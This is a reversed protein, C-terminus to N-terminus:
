SQSNNPLTFYFSSGKGPISEVWIRGGLMEVYAKSITLGLGSGRFQSSNSKGVQIFRDFITKQMEESIGIGTDKVSFQIAKENKILALEITGSHTFKIANKVLNTLIAYLKERDTKLIADQDSSFKMLTLKLGKEDIEPQFFASIFELQDNLNTESIHIDMLGAEIKSVDVIDNIICLMRAGSKEIIKIYNQQEKGTLGPEKLLEAFGLIGNMPTRIEHSMNALFASKLKDANQAKEQQNRYFNLAVNILAVSIFLYIMMGSYLDFLRDFSTSYKGTILPYNYELLFLATINIFVTFTFFFRQRKTFFIIIFCELVVFLYPIPGSSGYNIFWQINTIIFKRKIRSYFYVPLFIFTPILTSLVLGWSLHLFINVLTGLFGLLATLFCLVLVLYNDFGIEEPTGFLKQSLRKLM